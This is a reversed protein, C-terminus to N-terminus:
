CGTVTAVLGVLGRWLRVIVGHGLVLWRGLSMMVRIAFHLCVVRIMGCVIGIV